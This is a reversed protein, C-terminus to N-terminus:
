HVMGNKFHNLIRNSTKYCCYFVLLTFSKDKKVSFTQNAHKSYKIDESNLGNTGLCRRSKLGKKVRVSPM